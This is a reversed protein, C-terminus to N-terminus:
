SSESIRRMVEDFEDISCVRTKLSYVDILGGKMDRVGNEIRVKRNAVREDMKMLQNDGALASDPLGDKPNPSETRWGNQNIWAEFMSRYTGAFGVPMDRMAWDVEKAVKWADRRRPDGDKEANIKEHIRMLWPSAEDQTMSAASM